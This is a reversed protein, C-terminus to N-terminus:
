REKKIIQILEYNKLSRERDWIEVFLKTISLIKKLYLHPKQYYFFMFLLFASYFSRVLLFSLFDRIESIKQKLVIKFLVKKIM